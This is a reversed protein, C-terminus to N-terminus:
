SPIYNYVNGGITAGSITPDAVLLPDYYVDGTIIAGSTLFSGSGTMYVDGSCFSSADMLSTAGELRVSAASSGYGTGSSAGSAYTVGSNQGVTYCGSGNLYIATSVLGGIECDPGQAYIYAAEGGFSSAEGDFQCTSCITYCMTGTGTTVIDANPATIAITANDVECTLYTTNPFSGGAIVASTGYLEIYVNVEPTDITCEAPDESFYVEGYTALGLCTLNGILTGYPYGFYNLYCIDIATPLSSAPITFEPDMFWDSLEDLEYSVERHYLYRM